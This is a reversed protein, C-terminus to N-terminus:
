HVRGCLGESSVSHQIPASQDKIARYPLFEMVERPYPLSFSLLIPFYCRPLMHQRLSSRLCELLKRSSFDRSNRGLKAPFITQFELYYNKEFQM